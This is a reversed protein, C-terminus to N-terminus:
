YLDYIPEASKSLYSLSRHYGPSDDKVLFKIKNSNGKISVMLTQKDFEEILIGHEKFVKDLIPVIHMVWRPDPIVFPIVAKNLTQILGVALTCAYHTKGVGRGTRKGTAVEHLRKMDTREM